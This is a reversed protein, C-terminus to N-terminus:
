ACARVMRVASSSALGKQANRPEKAGGPLPASLCRDDNTPQSDQNDPQQQSAADVQPQNSNLHPAAGDNRKADPRRQWRRTRGPVSNGEAGSAISRSSKAVVSAGVPIVEGLQPSEYRDLGYLLRQRATLAPPARFFPRLDFQPEQRPSFWEEMCPWHSGTQLQEYARQKEVYVHEPTLAAPLMCMYVVARFSDRQGVPPAGKHALDSRWLIVDGRKVPVRVPRIGREELFAKEGDNLIHWNKRGAKGSRGAMLTPHHKHSGPWCLFCGDDHEQDTLAVSGQICQLGMLATGQDFHDNPSRGLERQTPRQLTFGDKSCHLERTGYLKEYVREAMMERLDSFVWGAQHLQMMDRQSCPWPDYGGRRQWSRPDRRRVGHSVTEVWQWMRDYEVAVEAHSFVGPLVVYGDREIHTLLGRAFESNGIFPLLRDGQVQQV